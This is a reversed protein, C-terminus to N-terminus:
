PIGDLPGLTESLARRQDSDQAADFADQNIIPVANLQITRRDYKAIRLLHKVTLEVSNVHGQSLATALASIAADVISLAKNGSDIAM